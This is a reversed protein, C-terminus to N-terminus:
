LYPVRYVSVFRNLFPPSLTKFIFTYQTVIFYTGTIINKNKKNLFLEFIITKITYKIKDRNQIWCNLM